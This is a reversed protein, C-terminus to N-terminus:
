DLGIVETEVPVENGIRLLKDALCELVGALGLPAGPDAYFRPLQCHGAPTSRWSAAGRSAPLRNVAHAAVLRRLLREKPARADSFCSQM